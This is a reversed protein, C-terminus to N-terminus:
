EESIKYITENTAYTYADNLKRKTSFTDHELCPMNFIIGSGTYENQEAIIDENKRKKKRMDEEILVFLFSKLIDWWFLVFLVPIIFVYMITFKYWSLGYLNDEIPEDWTAILWILAIFINLLFYALITDYSFIYLLLVTLILHVLFGIVNHGKDTLKYGFM